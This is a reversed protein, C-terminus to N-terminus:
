VAEEVWTFTIVASRNNSKPDGTIVLDKGPRLHISFDALVDISNGNSAVEHTDILIGNSSLTPLTYVLMSSTATGGIRNLRISHATGVSTITPDYYLGFNAYNNEIDVGYSSRYVYLDKGSGSPNRILFLPNDAGASTMNVTGAVTFVKEDKVLESITSATPPSSPGLVTNVNISGDSNVVMNTGTSSDEIVRARAEERAM